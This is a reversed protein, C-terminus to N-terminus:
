QEPRFGPTQKKPKCKDRVRADSLTGEYPQPHETLCTELFRTIAGVNSVIPRLPIRDPNVKQLKPTGYFKAASPTQPILDKITQAM